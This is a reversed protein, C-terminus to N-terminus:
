CEDDDLRPGDMGEAFHPQIYDSDDRAADDRTKSIGGAFAQVSGSSVLRKKLLKLHDKLEVVVSGRSSSVSAGNRNMRLAARAIRMEQCRVSALEISSSDNIYRNVEEDALSFDDEVTDGIDMRVKALDSLPSSTDYTYAM